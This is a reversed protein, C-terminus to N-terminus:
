LGNIGRAVSYIQPWACMLTGFQKLHKRFSGAPIDSPAMYPGSASLALQVKEIAKALFEPQERAEEGLRVYARGRWDSVLGNAFENLDSKESIEQLTKGFVDLTQPNTEVLVKLLFESFVPFTLSSLEQDLHAQRKPTHHMAYNCYAARRRLCNGLTVGFLTDEGRQSPLFPPLLETADLGMSMGCCDAWNVVTPHIASCLLQRTQLTRDLQEPDKIKKLFAHSSLLWWSTSMGTDGVSGGVTLNVGPKSLLNMHQALFDEDVLKTEDVHDMVWCDQMELRPGIAYRLKDDSGPVPAFKCEMDDDLMVFRQGALALLLFNRAAGMAVESEPLLAGMVEPCDFGSAFEKRQYKDHHSFPLGLRELVQRNRRVGSEVSDDSVVLRIHKGFLAANDRLSTVCREFAATRNKTLIAIPIPM